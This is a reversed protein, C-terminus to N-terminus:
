IDAVALEGDKFISLTPFSSVGYKAALEPNEDANLNVVKVKGALATAIQELIPASMECAPCAETSFNVLVPEASKLVEETFNSADAKVTVM